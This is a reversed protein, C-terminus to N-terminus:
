LDASFNECIAKVGQIDTETLNFFERNIRKTAFKAHLHAGLQKYSKSEYSYMCFFDEFNCKNLSHLRRPLDRTMGIKFIGRTQWAFTTCIYISGTTIDNLNEAAWTKFTKLPNNITPIVENCIWARFLNDEMNKSLSM